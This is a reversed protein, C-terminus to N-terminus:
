VDTTPHLTNCLTASHQLTNCLTACHQLANCLTASHQLTNYITVSHHLTSCLKATPYLNNCHQFASEGAVAYQMNANFGWEPRVCVTRPWWHIVGVWGQSYPYTHINNIYSGGSPVCVRLAPDSIVLM